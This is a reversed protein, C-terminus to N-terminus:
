SPLDPNSQRQLDPDTREVDPLENTLGPVEEDPGNSRDRRSNCGERSVKAAFCTSAAKAEDDFGIVWNKVSTREKDAFQM